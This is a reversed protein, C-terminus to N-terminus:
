STVKLHMRIAVCGSGGIAGYTRSQVDSYSRSCSGGGGGGGLGREGAQPNTTRYNTTPGGGNGGGPNGGQGGSRVFNTDINSNFFAGSGGGGGYLSQETFSTYIYTTGTGGPSGNFNYTSQGAGGGYGNGTGGPGGQWGNVYGAQGGQESFSFATTTGGATGSYGSVSGGSGVTISYSRDPVFSVQEHISSYGGGGGSGANDSTSCGSAGGGGLSVDIREVNDSFKVSTSSTYQRFNYLTAVLEAEYVETVAAEIKQTSFAVDAYGSMGDVGINVSGANCYGFCKGQSNTVCSGTGDVNAAIGSITLGEYPTGGVTQVTVNVGAKNYQILDQKRKIQLLVDDINSGDDLQFESLLDQSNLVVNSYVRPWLVVYSGDEGKYNMEIIKGM